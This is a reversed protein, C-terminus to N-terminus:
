VVLGDYNRHWFWTVEEWLVGYGEYVPAPEVLLKEAATTYTNPQPMWQESAEVCTDGLQLKAPNSTSGVNQFHSLYQPPVRGM